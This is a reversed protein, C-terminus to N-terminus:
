YCFSYLPSHPRIFQLNYFDAIINYNNITVVQLHDIFGIILFGRICDCVKKKEKGSCGCNLGQGVEM